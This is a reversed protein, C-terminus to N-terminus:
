LSDILELLAVRLRNEELKKDERSITGLNIEVKMENLRGLQAIVINNDNYVRFIDKLVQETHGKSVKRKLSTKNLGSEIIGALILQADFDKRLEPIFVAKKMDAHVILEEYSRFYKGSDDIAVMEQFNLGHFSNHIAKFEIRIIGLLEKKAKGSIKIRIKRNIDDEIIEAFSKEAFSKEYQLVVGYRWFSNDNTYQHTRVIFRTIIGSPMFEYHYQFHFIKDDDRFAKYHPPDPPLLEPVIYNKSNGFEFCLEYNKMLQLLEPRKNKFEEGKWIDLLDFDTFKGRKKQVSETDLVSYVGDVVWDPNIIVTNRLILDDQHHVIIGLDNYYQSLLLAQPENLEYKFCLNLYEQYSIHDMKSKSLDEIAKRIDIWSKPLEDGIQPLEKIAGKVERILTNITDEYGNKCSVKVFAHINPFLQKYKQTPLEKKREDIKNQIIIIPSSNSRLKIINLWYDFDLYNDEQRADTVFFYLSRKTLFFQHTADYKEQGAFDWINFRFKNSKGLKVNLYWEKIDIGETSLIKDDLEHEPERLKRVISTKGRGGRGVLLLKAEYLYDHQQSTIISLLYNKIAKAGRNIIEIPINKIPNARLDLVELKNMNGIEKPIETLLNNHIDIIKVKTLSDLGDPLSDIKNNQIYIEKLNKLKKIEPILERLENDKLVLYELKTLNEIEPPLITLHNSSLDLRKLNTLLGIESPLKRLKMWSLNLETIGAADAERIRQTASLYM